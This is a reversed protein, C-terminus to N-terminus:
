NALLLKEGSTVRIVAERPCELGIHGYPMEHHSSLM